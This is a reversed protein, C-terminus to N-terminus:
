GKRILDLYITQAANAATVYVELAPQSQSHFDMWVGMKGLRQVLVDDTVNNQTIIGGPRHGSGKPIFRFAVGNAAIVRAGVISYNGVPLSQSLTFEGSAWSGVVGTITATGRVTFIQGTVPQLAGDSLFLVAGHQEAAAPNATSWLRIGEGTVLKIPNEFRPTFIPPAGGIVAPEITSLDLLATSRLSPADLFPAGQLGAGAGMFTYVGILNNLEGVTIVDGIVQVVQDVIGAVGTVVGAEDQSEGFAVVTHKSM